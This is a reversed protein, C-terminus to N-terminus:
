LKRYEGRMEAATRCASVITELMDLSVKVLEDRGDIRIHMAVASRGASTNNRLLLVAEPQHGGYSLAPRETLYETVEDVGVIM